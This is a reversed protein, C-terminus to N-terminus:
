RMSWRFSCRKKAFSAFMFDMGEVNISMAHRPTDVQANACVPVVGGGGAPVDAVGTVGGAAFGFEFGAVPWFLLGEAMGGGGGEGADVAVFPLM